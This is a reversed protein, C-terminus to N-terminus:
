VANLLQMSSCLNTYLIVIAYNMVTAIVTAALGIMNQIALARLRNVAAVVVFSRIM